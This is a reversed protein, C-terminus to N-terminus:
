IMMGEIRPLTVRLLQYLLIERKERVDSSDYAYYTFIRDVKRTGIAENREFFSLWVSWATGWAVSRFEKGQSLFVVGAYFTADLAAAVRVGWNVAVHTKWRKYAHPLSDGPGSLPTFSDEGALATMIRQGMEYFQRSFIPTSTVMYWTILADSPGSDPPSGGLVLNGVNYLLAGTSPTSPVLGAMGSFIGAAIVKRSRKGEFLLADCGRMFKALDVGNTSTQGEKYTVPLSQLDQEDINRYVVAPGGEASIFMEHSLEAVLSSSPVTGITRRTLTLPKQADSDLLLSEEDVPIEMAYPNTLHSFFLLFCFIILLYKEVKLSTKM